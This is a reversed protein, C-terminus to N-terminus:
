FYKELQELAYWFGEGNNKHGQWIEPIFSAKPIITKLQSALLPFDIEGDNIQLGEGDVGLADVIHLHSTYPGVTKIFESFSWHFQNCALKSHSIDLCMKYNNQKCFLATEDPDIFLNQFRQGGFHWPFPPMTQPIIEVENKDLQNLSELLLDYLEKRESIEIAKDATFGGANIIIRPKRSKTFWNNLRKTVNIVEQLNQISQARYDENKSCLDLLHDGRFLEPAHVILEMDLAKTFYQAEDELLDKYSLHFELLNFNSSKSLMDLDHYRVPIGFPRSFSYKRPELLNEILDSNFLIDGVRLKRKAQTGVLQTKKNPKIGTGPSRVDLMHSEIIDGIQLNANIVLSKGIAERNMIEGQSLLRCDVKTLAEETQRIGSVMDTFEEPLLSVKHDNGEMTKDLTFHKEIINAGLAVAAIVINNGREHSSYGVPCAGLARLNDMYHLNIDKFPAPYTSNCHLLAYQAGSSRLLAVSERIETESTMGTSAIIPKGTNALRELHEHNTFDASASKYASIGYNNLADLSPIDWPTCLPTIGKKYCYDFIRFMDNKSLQYRSLLDLVYQSGLDEKIDSEAGSNTYLAALDRMQFKACNAGSNLAEDVLKTALRYSGNHNNGIEAIIFCPNGNGIEHQDIVFKDTRRRAIAVCRGEKDTLPIFHTKYDILSTIQETNDTLKATIIDKNIITSVSASLNPNDQKLVWRRFDGDTLVGKLVGNDDVSVIMGDKNANIKILADQISEQELVLYTIINKDIIM